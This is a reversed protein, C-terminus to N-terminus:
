IIGTKRRYYDACIQSIRKSPEINDLEAEEEILQRVPESLAVQFRYERKKGVAASAGLVEHRVMKELEQYEPTKKVRDDLEDRAQAQGGPAAAAAPGAELIRRANETLEGVADLFGQKKLRARLAEFGKRDSYGAKQAAETSTMGGAIDKRINVYKQILDEM